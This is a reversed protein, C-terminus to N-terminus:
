DGVWGADLLADLSPFTEVVTGLDTFVNGSYLKIEGDSEVDQALIVGIGPLGTKSRRKVPLKPWLPWNDTARMKEREAM